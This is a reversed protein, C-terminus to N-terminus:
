LKYPESGSGIRRSYDGSPPTGSPRSAVTIRRLVVTLAHSSLLSAPEIGAAAVSRLGRTRTGNPTTERVLSLGWLEPPCLAPRQPWLDVTSRQRALAFIPTRNM